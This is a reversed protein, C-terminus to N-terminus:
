ICSLFSPELAMITCTYVWLLPALLYFSYWYQSTASELHEFWNM